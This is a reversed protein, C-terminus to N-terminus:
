FNIKRFIKSKKWSALVTEKFDKKEPETRGTNDKELCTQRIELM